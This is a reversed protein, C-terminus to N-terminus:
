DKKRAKLMAYGLRGEKGEHRQLYLELVSFGNNELTIELETLSMEWLHETNIKSPGSTVCYPTSLILFGHERLSRHFNKLVLSIEMPGFHEITELSVIHDANFTATRLNAQMFKLKPYDRRCEVILSDSYEVGLVDHRTALISSGYGNGCAADLVLSRARPLLELAKTYRLVHRVDAPTIPM